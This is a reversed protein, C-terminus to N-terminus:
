IEPARERLTVCAGVGVSFLLEANAQCVAIELLNFSSLLAVPTGPRVDSYTRMLEHLKLSGVEIDYPPNLTQLDKSTINTILNGFGDVFVIKGIIEGSRIEPRASDRRVWRNTREGLSEPTQGLTLQAIAPAMLDRGHFTNSVRPLRWRAADVRYVVPEVDLVLQLPNWFGNDPGVVIHEGLVVCIIARDSGVGPDVVVLHRAAPPFYPVAGALFFGAHDVDQAPIAHTLDVLQVAPNIRLIVGKMAAVYPSATGFDTTLTIISTM